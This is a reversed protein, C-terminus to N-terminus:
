INALYRATNVNRMTMSKYLKHGILKNLRSKSYNKRLLHLIVAGKVYRVDVYEMKMPLEAIISKHDVEPFLYSVETRQATDNKWQAPIAKAINKIERSTKILISTTFGFQQELAQEIKKSNLKKNSSLIINGSNIYSSVDSYGLNEFFLRLSKMDLKKNGGVNVGRLLVIYKM